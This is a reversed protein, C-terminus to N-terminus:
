NDHPWSLDVIVRRNTSNPKHRTMFPSFHCEPIPCKDFPGIIAGHQIEEGLYTIIDNPFDVASSHNKMDSYLPCDRNFDLPFGYQILLFLQQDWYDSLSAKWEEVNLQSVIPTRRGLFNPLNASKVHFHQQIPCDIKQGMHTSDPMVLDSLPVFGFNYKSQSRWLKFVDCQVDSLQIQRRACNRQLVTNIYKDNSGTSDYIPICNSECSDGPNTHTFTDCKVDSLQIQRRACNEQLVKNMHKDNSGTSDYIPICNSECSDGPNTHTFNECEVDSLQIQGPACNKQLVTNMHRYNCGTSDYIPVCNSKCSDGISTHTFVAVQGLEKLPSVIDCRKDSKIGMNNGGQDSDTIDSGSIVKSM